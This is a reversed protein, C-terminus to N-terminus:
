FAVGGSKEDVFINQREERLMYGYFLTPSFHLPSM